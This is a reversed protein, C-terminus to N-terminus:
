IYLRRGGDVNIVSGTSYSAQTLLYVVTKSIDQPKGIKKLATNKIIEQQHSDPQPNSDSSPWLIAGPSVANVRVEPAFEAALEKTAELLGAKSAVYTTHNKLGSEAYIDILNVISGSEKKLWPFAAQALKVPQFFNVQLFTALQEDQIKEIATPYFISANNVLYDLRGFQNTVQEILRSANNPKILDCCFVQASQKRIDNLENKLQNAAEVSKGCHIAIDIGKQHLEIAISKGLRHAAGTVLAVKNKNKM